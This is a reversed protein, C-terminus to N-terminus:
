DRKELSVNVWLGWRKNIKGRTSVSPDLKILGSTRQRWAADVVERVDPWIAEALYGFRKFASGRARERLRELLKEPNWERSERYAALIGLLHRVGGVWDPSVLADAITRERDSVAVREKGRWITVAGKVVEPSVHVLHLEAALLRETSRRIRVATVVFTSRFLQETLGWHEAASWGGIYCPSFLEQALLWPDEVTSPVSTSAELPRVLYLGRRVRALWGRRELSAIRNAAARTPIDLLDAAREVSILGGRAGRALRSLVERSRLPRSAREKKKPKM